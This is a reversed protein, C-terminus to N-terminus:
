ADGIKPASQIMARYVARSRPYPGKQSLFDRHAAAGDILMEETAEKPVVVYGAQEIATLVARSSALAVAECATESDWETSPWIVDKIAEALAQLTLDTM